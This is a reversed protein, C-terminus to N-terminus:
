PQQQTQVRGTLWNVLVAIRSTAAQVTVAGGSSSGDPAFSIAANGTLTVDYPMGRAMSGDIRYLNGAFAVTVPRNEAIARGRAMRLTGALDRAAAQADLRASHTPGRMLVLDLALGLIVLVVIM